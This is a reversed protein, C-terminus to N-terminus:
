KYLKRFEIEKRVLNKAVQFQESLKTVMDQSEKIWEENLIKDLKDKPVLFYSTFIEAEERM